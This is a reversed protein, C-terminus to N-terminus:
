SSPRGPPESPESPSRPPERHTEEKSPTTRTESGGRAVPRDTSAFAELKMRVLVYAVGTLPDFWEDSVRITRLAAMARDRADPCIRFAESATASEMGCLQPSLDELLTALRSRAHERAHRRALDRRAIGSSTGVYEVSHGNRAFNFTDNAVWAPAGREVPSVPDASACAYALLGFSVMRLGAKM